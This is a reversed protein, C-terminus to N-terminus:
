KLLPLRVDPRHSAPNNVHALLQVAHQGILELSRSVPVVNDILDSHEPTYRYRISQCVALAHCKPSIGHSATQFGTEGSDRGCL